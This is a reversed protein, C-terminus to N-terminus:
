GLCPLLRKGLLTIAILPQNQNRARQDLLRRQQYKIFGAQPQIGKISSEHQGQDFFQNFTILRGDQIDTMIMSVLQGTDLVGQM